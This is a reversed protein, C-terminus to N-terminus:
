LYLIASGLLQAFTLIFWILNVGLCMIILSRFILSLSLFIKSVAPSFCCIAELSVSVQVFRLKEDCVM